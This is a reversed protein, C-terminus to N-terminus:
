PHFEPAEPDLINSEVTVLDTEPLEPKSQDAFLRWREPVQSEKWEQTVRETEKVLQDWDMTELAPPMVATQMRKQIENLIKELSQNLNLHYAKALVEIESLSCMQLDKVNM